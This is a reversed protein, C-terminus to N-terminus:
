MHLSLHALSKADHLMAYLNSDTIAALPAAAFYRLSVFDRKWWPTNNTSHQPQFTNLGHLFSATVSHQFLSCSYISEPHQQLQSRSCSCSLFCNTVLLSTSYTAVSRCLFSFCSPSTKFNTKNRFRHIISVNKNLVMRLKSHSDTGLQFHFLGFLVFCM